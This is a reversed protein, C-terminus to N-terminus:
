KLSRRRFITVSRVCGLLALAGLFVFLGARWDLERWGGFDMATAALGLVVATGLAAALEPLWGARGSPIIRALAWALAGSGIWLAVGM